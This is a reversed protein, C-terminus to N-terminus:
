GGGCYAAGATRDLEESLLETMTEADPDATVRRGNLFFTPTSDVKNVIGEKKSTVVAARVSPDTLLRAFAGPDLGAARAWDVAKDPRYEHFHGYAHLLYRWFGGLRHAAEFALNAPTSDKHSRIPFIRFYLKVRGRFAGETVARYLQPVAHACFPCRACAYVVLTVPAQAAGAVPATVLDIKAPPGFPTMSEARRRLAREIAPRDQGKEVRRCIDDRLRRALKCVKKQRLCAAITDDCCDYPHQSALLAAVLQRQKDTTLRDCPGGARAAAPALTVALAAVLAAATVLKM